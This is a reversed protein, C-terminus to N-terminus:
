PWRMRWARELRLWCCRTVEERLQAVTDLNLM